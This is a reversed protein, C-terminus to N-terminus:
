ETAERADHAHRMADEVEQWRPLGQCLEVTRPHLKRADVPNIKDWMDSAAVSVHTFGYHLIRVRKALVRANYISLALVVVNLVLCAALIM